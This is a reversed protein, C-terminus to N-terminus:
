HTQPRYSLYLIRIKKILNTNKFLLACGKYGGLADRNGDWPM